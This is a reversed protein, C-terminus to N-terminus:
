EELPLGCEGRWEQLMAFHAPADQGASERFAALKEAFCGDAVTAVEPEPEPAAQPKPPAPRDEALELLDEKAEEAEEILEDLDMGDLREKLEDVLSRIKWLSSFMEAPLKAGPAFLANIQEGDFAPDSEAYIHMMVLGLAYDIQLSQAPYARQMEQLSRSFDQDSDGDLEAQGKFMSVPWAIGVGLNYAYSMHQTAGFFYSWSGFLLAILLYGAILKNKL